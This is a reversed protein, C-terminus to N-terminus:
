WFRHPSQDSKGPGPLYIPRCNCASIIYNVLCENQCNMLSYTTYYNLPSSVCTGYPLKTNQFQFTYKSLCKVDWLHMHHNYFLAMANGEM